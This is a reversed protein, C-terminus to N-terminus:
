RKVPWWSLDRQQMHEVTTNLKNHREEHEHIEADCLPSETAALQQVQTLQTYRHGIIRTVFIIATAEINQM